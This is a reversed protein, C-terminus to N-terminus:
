WGLLGASGESIQGVILGVEVYIHGFDEEGAVGGTSM